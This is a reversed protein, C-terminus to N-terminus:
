LKGWKKQMRETQVIAEFADEGTCFLYNTNRELFQYASDMLLYLHKDFEEGVKFGESKMGYNESVVGNEFILSWQYLWQFDNVPPEIFQIRDIDVGFWLCMDVFHSASHAWGRNFYLYGTVFEGYKGSKINEHYQWFKPIFRRTYDVLLPVNNKKYLEVIERAQEANDCLPKECIVLGFGCDAVNKLYEYHSNDPTTIVVVDITNSNEPNWIREAELRMEPLIDGFGVLKFAPHDKVAHAYSLYKHENGSGPADSLAGKNGSGIIYVNYM